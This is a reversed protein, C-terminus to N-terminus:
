RESRAGRKVKRPARIQLPAGPERRGYRTVFELIDSLRFRRQNGPTRYHPLLGSNASRRVTTPCVNLLLATERLTLEPDFLRTLLATRSEGRAKTRRPPSPPTDPLDLALQLQAPIPPRPTPPAEPEKGFDLEHQYAEAIEDGLLDLLRLLPTLRDRVSGTGSTDTVAAADATDLPSTAM